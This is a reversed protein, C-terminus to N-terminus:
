QAFLTPTSPMVDVMFKEDSWVFFRRLGVSKLTTIWGVHVVGLISGAQEAADGVSGTRM